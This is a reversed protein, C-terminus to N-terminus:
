KKTNMNLANGRNKKYRALKQFHRISLRLTKETEWSCAQSHKWTNVFPTQKKNCRVRNKCYVIFLVIEHHPLIQESCVSLAPPLDDRKVKFSMKRCGCGGMGNWLCWVLSVRWFHVVYKTLLSFLLSRFFCNACTERVEHQNIGGTKECGNPTKSQHVAVFQLNDRSCGDSSSDGKSNNLLSWHCSTDTFPNDSEPGSAKQLHRLNRHRYAPHHFPM